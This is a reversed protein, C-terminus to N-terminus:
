PYVAGPLVPFKALQDFKPLCCNQFLEDLAKFRVAAMKKDKKLFHRWVATYLSATSNVINLPVVPYNDLPLGESYWNNLTKGWYGFEWKVSSIKKNLRACELFRERTDM